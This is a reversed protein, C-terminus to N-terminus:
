SLVGWDRSVHWPSKTVDWTVFGAPDFAQDLVELSEISEPLILLPHQVEDSEYDWLHYRDQGDHYKRTPGYDMPACKRTLVAQDEDSFFRVRVM